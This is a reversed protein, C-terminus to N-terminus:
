NKTVYAPKSVSGVFVKTNLKSHNLICYFPHDATFKYIKPPRIIACKFVCSVATAAAAETGEENVDIFCKQIVKSIAVNTRVSKPDILGSFDAEGSFATTMGMEQLISTFDIKSEIKFKPITVDVEVERDLKSQYDVPFIEELTSPLGNERPLAIILSFEKGKYPIEVIQVTEDEFYRYKGKRQIAPVEISEEPKLYFQMPVPTTKFPNEWKGNFYIANVLVSVTDDDLDELITPIKNETKQAVWGNIKDLSAKDKMDISETESDFYKVAAQQFEETLKVEKDVFVKNAIRIIVDKSKLQATLDLFGNSVKCADNPFKLVTSMEEATVGKAGVFTLALITEVSLPCLLINEPKNPSKELSAKSLLKYVDYGFKNNAEVVTGIDKSTAM